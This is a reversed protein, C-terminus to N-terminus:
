RTHSGQEHARLREEVLAAVGGPGGAQEIDVWEVGPERRFWTGQRRAYRWTDREMARRAEAETSEGRVVRVFDRYGIGHMAPLSADYGRALLARVEAELGAEVMAACRARLRLALAERGMTLGVYVVTEEPRARKWALEETGGGRVRELARIVRVADNPHLRQAMAPAHRRLRDHLAGRGEREAVAVLEARFGPDGPPAPDLGRLLARIYLGTGGVVVPQRGRARIDAVIAAAESRFRAAHYRDDPEVVDVLHHTVAHREAATPKGTAADM